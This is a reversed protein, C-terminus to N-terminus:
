LTFLASFKVFIISLFKLEFISPTMVVKLPSSAVKQDVMCDKALQTLIRGVLSLKPIRDSMEVNRRGRVLKDVFEVELNRNAVPKLPHVVLKTPAIQLIEHPPPAESIGIIYEVHFVKFVRPGYHILKEIFDFFSRM